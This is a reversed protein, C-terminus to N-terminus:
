KYAKFVGCGTGAYAVPNDIDSLDMALCCIHKNLDSDLGKDLQNWNEGGDITAFVGDDETGAFVIEDNQQSIALSIVNTSTLGSNRLQWTKGGDVTKYIGNGDVAIYVVNNDVPSITIGWVEIDTPLNGSGPQWSEGGNISKYIKGETGFWDEISAYLVSNDNPAIALRWVSNNSYPFDGKVEWKEAGDITKFIGNATGAYLINSSTPDMALTYVNTNTLGNNKEVWNEGADVTKHVGYLTGVYVRNQDSLDKVLTYIYPYENNSKPLGQSKLEWTNGGDKTRYVGLETGAYLINDDPLICSLAPVSMDQIGTFNVQKWTLGEGEYFSEYWTDGFVDIFTKSDSLAIKVQLISREGPFYHTWNSGGDTTVWLGDRSDYKKDDIGVYIAFHNNPDVELSLVEQYQDPDVPSYIYMYGWNDGGDDTRFLGFDFTGAYVRNPEQHDIALETISINGELDEPLGNSKPIWTLGGDPSKLVGEHSLGIFLIQADSPDIVMDKATSHPSTTGYVELWNQGGDVTRFIGYGMDLRVFVTNLNSPDTLIQDVSLYGYQTEPLGKSIHVWTEGADTSKYMGQSGTGLYIVQNDTPAIELELVRIRKQTESDMTPFYAWFSGGDTSKYVQSKRTISYLVESDTPDITLSLISGSFPGSTMEWSPFVVIGNRIEDVGGKDDTVRLCAIKQGPADYIWIVRDSSPGAADFTGDDEFDWEYYTIMGDPDYSASADFNVPLPSMGFNPKVTFDAVPAENTGINGDGTPLFNGGGGDGGCSFLSLSILGL